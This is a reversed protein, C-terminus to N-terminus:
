IQLREVEDSLGYCFAVHRSYKLYERYNKLNKPKYLSKKPCKRSYEHRTSHIMNELKYDLKTFEFEM